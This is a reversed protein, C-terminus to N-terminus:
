KGSCTPIQLTNVYDNGFDERLVRMYTAATDSKDTCVNGTAPCTNQMANYSGTDGYVASCYFMKFGADTANIAEESYRVIYNETASNYATFGKSRLKWFRFLKRTTNDANRWADWSQESNDDSPIRIKQACVDSVGNGPLDIIVNNGNTDYALSNATYELNSLSGYFTLATPALDVAKPNIQAGIHTVRDSEEGCKMQGWERKCTMVVSSINCDVEVDVDNPTRGLFQDRVVGGYIYIPCGENRLTQFVDAVTVTGPLGPVTTTRIFEAITLTAHQSRYFRVRQNLMSLMGSLELSSRSIEMMDACATVQRSPREQTGRLQLGDSAFKKAIHIKVRAGEVPLVFTTIIGIYVLVILVKPTMTDANDSFSYSLLGYQARLPTYPSQLSTM